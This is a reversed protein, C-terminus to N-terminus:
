ERRVLEAIPIGQWHRSSLLEHATAMSKIRGDLAAVFEAMSDTTEQTRSAIASVTALMNKVRHDLEAVLV